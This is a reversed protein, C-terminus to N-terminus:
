RPRAKLLPVQWLLVKVGRKHLDDVMGKPDPWASDAPFRFDALRHPAGDRHVTYKADRFAVLTSEDSWAEVVVVGAPINEVRSREVEAMVREQTNWENGSMWPRFVWDPP